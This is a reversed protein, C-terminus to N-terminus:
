CKCVYSYFYLYTSDRAKLTIKIYIEGSFLTKSCNLLNTYICMLKYFVNIEREREREKWKPQESQVPRINEESDIGMVNIEVM